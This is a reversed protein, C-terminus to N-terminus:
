GIPMMVASIPTGKKMLRTMDIRLLAAQPM